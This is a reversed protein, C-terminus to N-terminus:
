TIKWDRGVFHHIQSELTAPACLHETVKSLFLCPLDAATCPCGYPVPASPCGWCFSIQETSYPFAKDWMNQQGTWRSGHTPCTPSLVYSRCPSQCEHPWLKNLESKLSHRCPSHFLIPWCLQWTWKSCLFFSPKEQHIGIKLNWFTKMRDQSAFLHQWKKWPM